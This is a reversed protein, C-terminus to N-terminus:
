CLFRQSVQARFYNAIHPLILTEREQLPYSLPANAQILAQAPIVDITPAKPIALKEATIEPKFTVVVKPEVMVTIRPRM